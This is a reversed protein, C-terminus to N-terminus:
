NIQIITSKLLLYLITKFKILSFKKEQYFLLGINLSYKNKYIMIIYKEKPHVIIIIIENCKKKKIIKNPKVINFLKTNKFIQKNLLYNNHNINTNQFNSNTMVNNKQNLFNNNLIKTTKSFDISINNLQIMKPNLKFNNNSEKLLRNEFNM